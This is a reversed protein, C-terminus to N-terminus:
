VAAELDAVRVAHLDHPGIAISPSLVGARHLRSPHVRSKLDRVWAPCAPSDTRGVVQGGLYSREPFCDPSIWERQDPDAAILRAFAMCARELLTGVRDALLSAEVRCVDVALARCASDTLTRLGIREFFAVYDAATAGPPVTWTLSLDRFERHRELAAAFRNLATVPARPRGITTESM